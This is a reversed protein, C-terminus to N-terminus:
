MFASLSEGEFNIKISSGSWYLEAGNVKSSDIRGAYEIQSNSYDVFLEQETSCAFVLTICIISLLLKLM